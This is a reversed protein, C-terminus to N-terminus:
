QGWAEPKQCADDKGLSEVPSGRADARGLALVPYEAEEWAFRSASFFNRSGPKVEDAWTGGRRRVSKALLFPFAGESHHQLLVIRSIIPTSTCVDCGQM